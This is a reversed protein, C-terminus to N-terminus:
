CAMDSTPDRMPPNLTQENAHAAATDSPMNVRSCGSTGSNGQAKVVDDIV